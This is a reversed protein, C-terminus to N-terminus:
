PLTVQTSYTSAADTAKKRPSKWALTITATAGAWTVLGGAAGGAGIGPLGRGNTPDAVVAKWSTITGAPLSVSHNLWMQAALEDALLVARGRDEVDVSSQVTRGMAAVLGLMGISTLVMTVLVEILSMGRQSAPAPGRQAAGSRRILPRKM